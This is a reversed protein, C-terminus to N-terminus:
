TQSSHANHLACSDRRVGFGLLLHNEGLTLQALDVGADGLHVGRGGGQFALQGGLEVGTFSPEACHAVQQVQVGLELLFLVSQLRLPLLPPPLLLLPPLPHLLLYSLPALLQPSQFLVTQLLFLPSLGNLVSEQPDRELFILNVFSFLGELLELFLLFLGLLKLYLLLLLFLVSDSLFLFLFCFLFVLVFRFDWFYVAM